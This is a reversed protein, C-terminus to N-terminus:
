MIKEIERLVEKARINDDHKTETIHRLEKQIEINPKFNTIINKLESINDFYIILDDPFFYNMKKSKNSIIQTGCAAFELIKARVIPVLNSNTHIAGASKQIKKIYENGIYIDRNIIKSIEMRLPYTHGINCNFLIGNGGYNPTYLKTNISWPLWSNNNNPERNNKDLDRWFIYDIKNYFSNNFNRYCSDNDFLVTKVTSNKIKNLLDMHNKWRKYMPLFVVDYNNLNKDFEELIVKDGKIADWVGYNVHYNYRNKNDKAPYIKLIKIGRNM